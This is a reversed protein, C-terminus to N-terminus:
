GFFSDVKLRQKEQKLLMSVTGILLLCFGILIAIVGVTILQEQM